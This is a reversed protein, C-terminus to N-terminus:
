GANQGFDPGGASAALFAECEIRLGPAQPLVLVTGAAAVFQVDDFLPLVVAPGYNDVTDIIRAGCDAFADRMLFAHLFRDVVPIRHDSWGAEGEVVGVQKRLPLAANEDAAQAGLHEVPEGDDVILYDGFLRQQDIQLGANAINADPGVAGNVHQGV